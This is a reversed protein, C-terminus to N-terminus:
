VNTGTLLAPRLLSSSPPAPSPRAAAAAGPGLRQPARSHEPAPRAEPQILGGSARAVCASQLAAALESVQRAEVAAAEVGPQGAVRQAHAHQRGGRGASVRHPAQPAASARPAAVRWGAGTGCQRGKSHQCGAEVLTRGCGALWVWDEGMSEITKCVM